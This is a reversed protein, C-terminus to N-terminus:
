LMCTEGFLSSGGGECCADTRLLDEIVSGSMLSRSRCRRAALVQSTYYGQCFRPLCLICLASWYAASNHDHRNSGAASQKAAALISAYATLTVYLLSDKARIAINDSRSPDSRPWCFDKKGCSVMGKRELRTETCKLRMIM